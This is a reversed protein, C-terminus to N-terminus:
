RGFEAEIRGQDIAARHRGHDAEAIDAYAAAFRAIARDFTDDDGLYGAIPAPDGSRAHALALARGCLEGYQRLRRPGLGEVKPAGKGDWLQRFYFDVPRDGHEYRSWGLMVDSAAQMLQQGEVVRRAANPYRSAGAYPELVSATAEKFQLFLPHGSGSEALVILCRTGVSGVGVIRHAVDIVHYRMALERRKATLSDLYGVALERMAVVPDDDIFRDLHMTRPPDEVIRRTGDIITTLREVASAQNKGAAKAVLKTSKPDLLEVVDPTISLRLYTLELPDMEAVDGITERYSRVAARTAAKIKPTEHGNNRGAITISAALRKVDWEFPGPLTEDFDNLDFLQHRDPGNFLGFNSIHADGCLQVRIGSSPSRGLDCAMVAAAGRYFTFATASMRGHRIPVFQAVRTHDQATVLEIPDPRQETDIRDHDGLSLVDRRARGFSVREDLPLWPLPTGDEDYRNREISRSYGRVGSGSTTV